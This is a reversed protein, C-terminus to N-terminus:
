GKMSGEQDFIERNKASFEKLDFPKQIFGRCGQDLIKEALGNISYGSALLVKGRPNM